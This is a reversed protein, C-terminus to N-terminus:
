YQNTEVVIYKEARTRNFENVCLLADHLMMCYICFREGNSVAIIYEHYAYKDIFEVDGKDGEYYHTNGLKVLM